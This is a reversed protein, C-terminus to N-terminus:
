EEESDFGEELLKKMFADSRKKDERIEQMRNIPHENYKKRANIAIGDPYTWKFMNYDFNKKRREEDTLNPLSEDLEKRIEYWERLHRNMGSYKEGSFQLCYYGDKEVIKLNYKEEMQFLAYMAGVLTETTPDMLAITEVGLAAAFKKLLAIKPKRRGNEYQQVRNQDLGVLSGLEARTMERTERIKKIRRGIREASRDENIDAYDEGGPVHAFIAM